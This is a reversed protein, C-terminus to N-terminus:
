EEHISAVVNLFARNKFTGTVNEISDNLRVLEYNTDEIAKCIKSLEEILCQTSHDM